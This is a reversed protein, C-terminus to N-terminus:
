ASISFFFGMRASVMNWIMDMVLGNTPAAIM